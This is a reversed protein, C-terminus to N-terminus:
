EIWGTDYIIQKGAKLAERRMSETGRDGPFLFVYDTYEAMQKNRMPGAKRGHKIWDAPFKKIPIKLIEACREGFADAGIASGSIIETIIYKKVAERILKSDSYFGKFDRGGAIVMRM